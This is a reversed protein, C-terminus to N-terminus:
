ALTNEIQISGRLRLVDEAAYPRKVGNWRPNNAWEYDLCDQALGYQATKEAESMAPSHSSHQRGNKSGNNKAPMPLNEQNGIKRTNLINFMCESYQRLTHKRRNGTLANNLIIFM